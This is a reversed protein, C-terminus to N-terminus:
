CVHQELYIDKKMGIFEDVFTEMLRPSQTQQLYNIKQGFCWRLLLLNRVQLNPFAIIAQKEQVLVELKQTL